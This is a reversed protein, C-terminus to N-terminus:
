LRVQVKALILLLFFVHSHHCASVSSISGDPSHFSSCLLWLAVEDVLINRYPICYYCSVHLDNYRSWCLQCPKVSVLFLKFTNGSEPNLSQPSVDWSSCFYCSLPLAFRIETLLLPDSTCHGVRGWEVQLWPLSHVRSPSEKRFLLAQIRAEPATFRSEM